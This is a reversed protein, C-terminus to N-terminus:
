FFCHDLWERRVQLKVIGLEGGYKAVTAPKFNVMTNETVKLLSAQVVRRMGYRQRLRPDANALGGMVVDTEGAQKAAVHIRRDPSDLGAKPV